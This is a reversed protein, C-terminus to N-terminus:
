DDTAVVRKFSGSKRLEAEALMKGRILNLREAVQHMSDPRMAPEIEVCDMILKDFLEPVRPNYATTPKPKEMMSTDVHDLLSDGKALATPVFRRTLAWYMTAGLNYIDTKATIPQRHVQEPAIYDPTGQIRKKVTNIPCSQGLDIVKVGGHADVIVNNPKMDAHVFGKDHMYAMARATQEFIDAASEFTRPPNRDVSTGDVLEMIVYLESTTLLGSKKRILRDAKRIGPHDLKSAITYESEAQELFRADKESERCVHKLAWVQKTKTDQVLYIISAAGRGLEAMVRYQGEIIEGNKFVQM